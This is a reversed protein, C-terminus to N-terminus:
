AWPAQALALEERVVDKRVHEAFEERRAAVWREKRAEARDRAM